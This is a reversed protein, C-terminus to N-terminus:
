SATQLPKAQITYAGAKTSAQASSWVLQRGVLLVNGHHDVLVDCVEGNLSIQQGSFTVFRQCGKPGCVKVYLPTSAPLNAEPALMLHTEQQDFVIAQLQKPFLGEFEQFCKRAEALQPDPVQSRHAKWSTLVLGLALCVAAIGFALAPKRLLSQLPSTWSGSPNPRDAADAFHRRRQLEATVRGPFQDWYEAGREPVAARKLMENLAQDKM